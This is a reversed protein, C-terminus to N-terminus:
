RHFLYIMFRPPLQAELQGKDEEEQSAAVNGPKMWPKMFKM